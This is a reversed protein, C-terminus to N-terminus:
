ELAIGVLVRLFLCVFLAVFAVRWRPSRTSAVGVILFLGGFGVIPIMMYISAVFVFLVPDRLAALRSRPPALSSAVLAGETVVTWATMFLALAALAPASPGPVDRLPETPLEPGAAGIADAIARFRADFALSYFFTRGDRFTEAALKWALASGFIAAPMWRACASLVTKPRSGGLALALAICWEMGLLEHDEHEWWEPLLRWALAIALAGWLLPGRRLRRAADSPISILVLVAILIPFLDPARPTNSLLVLVTGLAVLDRVDIRGLRAAIRDIVKM